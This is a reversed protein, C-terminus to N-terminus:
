EDRRGERANKQVAMVAKVTYATAAFTIITTVFCILLFPFLCEKLLDFQEIIAVGAPIFFFAMNKLLFDGFQEIHRPKIWKVLLLVFLLIMSVVSTPITIPLVGSILEGALCVALVVGVQFLSKM